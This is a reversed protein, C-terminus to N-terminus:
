SADVLTVRTGFTRVLWAWMCKWARNERRMAAAAALQDDGSAGVTSPGRGQRRFTLSRLASLATLPARTAPGLAEGGRIILASLSQAIPSAALGRVLAAAGGPCGDFVVELKTVQPVPWPYFLRAPADGTVVVRLKRLAPLRSFLAFGDHSVERALDVNVYTTAAAPDADDFLRVLAADDLLNGLDEEWASLDLIEPLRSCGRVANALRAPTTAALDEHGPWLELRQLPRGRLFPALEDSLDLGDIALCHQLSVDRLFPFSPLAWCEGTAGAHFTANVLLIECNPFISAMALAVDVDLDLRVDLHRVAPMIGVARLLEASNRPLGCLAEISVESSGFQLALQTITRSHARMLDRAVMYSAETWRVNELTLEKLPRCSVPHGLLPPLAEGSAEFVRLPFYRLSPALATYFEHEWSADRVAENDPLCERNLVLQRVYRTKSAFRLFTAADAHPSHGWSTVGGARAASAAPPEERNAGVAWICLFTVSDAGLDALRRCTSFLSNHFGQDYCHACILLLLDDPLDLLSLPPLPRVPRSPPPRRRPPVAAKRKGSRLQM